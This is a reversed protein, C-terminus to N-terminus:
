GRLLDIAAALGPDTAESFLHWRSPVVVEPIVGTREWAGVTGGEPRVAHTALFARWGHPLDFDHLQEVNGATPLGVLTARGKSQLIGAFVEAFSETDRGILVVLPVRQSGGIDVPDLRITRSGDRDVFAGMRGGTFMQDIGDLVDGWGGDNIRDDIVLGDLPGDATLLRLAEQVQDDITLDFFTPLLVYGIRTGRVLCADVPTSGTVRRRVITVDRVGEGPREYTLRFSTGEPGRSRGVGAEDIFPEGDVALLVDHAQLGAEAAGSDPYVAVVTDTATGDITQSYVGMGVFDSRGQSASEREEIDRPSWVFSHDDGLEDVLWDLLLEFRQDDLGGLVRQFAIERADVWGGELVEPYLYEEALVRDLAAIIGLQQVSTAVDPEGTPTPPQSAIPTPEPDGVDPPMVAPASVGPVFRCERVAAGASPSSPAAALMVAALGGLLMVRRDM